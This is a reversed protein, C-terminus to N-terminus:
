CCCVKNTNNIRNRGPSSSFAFCFTREVESWHIHGQSFAPPRVKGRSKSRKERREFQMVKFIKLRKM